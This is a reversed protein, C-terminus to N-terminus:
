EIVLEEITKDLEEESMPPKEATVARVVASETQQEPTREASRMVFPKQQPVLTNERVTEIILSRLMEEKGEVFTKLAHLNGPLLEFKIWGFYGRDHKQKAGGVRKEMVYSLVRIVPFDESIVNGGREGIAEHLSGVFAPVGEEGVSSVVLYGLEYIKPEQNVLFDNAEDKKQEEDMFSLTACECAEHLTGRNRSQREISGEEM